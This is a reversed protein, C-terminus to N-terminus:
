PQSSPQTQPSAGIRDPRRILWFVSTAIAGAFAFWLPMDFSRFGSVLLSVALGSVLAGAGAYIPWATLGRRILLGHLPLGLLIFVPGGYVVGLMAGMGGLGVLNMAMQPPTAPIFLSDVTPDQVQTILTPSTTIALIAASLAGGVMLAAMVAIMLRVGFRRPRTM